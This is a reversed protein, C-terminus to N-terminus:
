DAWGKPELKARLAPTDCDACVRGAFSIQKLRAPDGVQKCYHCLGRGAALAEGDYNDPINLMAQLGNNYWGHKSVEERAYFPRRKDSLWIQVDDKVIMLSHDGRERKDVISAIEEETMEAETKYTKYGTQVKHHPGGPVETWGDALAATIWAEHVSDKSTTRLARGRVSREYASRAEEASAYHDEDLDGFPCQVMAKCPGVNGEDNIHYRAM